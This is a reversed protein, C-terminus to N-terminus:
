VDVEVIKTGEGGLDDQVRVAVRVRGNGPFTYEAGMAPAGKAGRVFSYGQTSTFRGDYDFDWQVNILKAGANLLATESVDFLFTRGQARKFGLEVRPPQVFTLFNAYDANDTTLASVHERFRPSDIRVTELKVFDVSAGQLERLHEAALTADPRFAWALMIGDRLNDQAYRATAKIANAFVEVDERTVRQKPDPSGVWVPVAGKYGHIGTEAEKVRVGFADLVFTRFGEPPTQSLRDREYM